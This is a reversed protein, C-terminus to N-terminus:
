FIIVVSDTRMDANSEITSAASLEDSRDVSAMGVFGERRGVRTFSGADAPLEDSSDQSEIGVLGARLGVM